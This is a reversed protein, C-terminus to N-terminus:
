QEILELQPETLYEFGHKTVVVTDEPAFGGLGWVYYPAEICLVMNEGLVRTNSPSLIPAEHSELGIGHGVHHRYYDHYGMKKPINLSAYFIDCAKVGSQIINIGAQEAKLTVDFYNKQKQTAKGLTFIRCIDSVYEKYIVSVDMRIVQHKEIKKDTYYTGGYGGREGATIQTYFIGTAGEEIETKELIIRLEAETMGPEAYEMAAQIGKETIEAARRLRRIEEDNKTIRLERILDAAGQLQLTPVEDHLQQFLTVPLLDEEFGLTGSSLEFEHLARAIGKIPTSVMRDPFDDGDKVYYRGYYLKKEIWTPFDLLLHFRSYHPTILYANDRPNRPILCYCQGTFTIDQDFDPYDSVYYNHQRSSTLLADLGRDKMLKRAKSLDFLLPM